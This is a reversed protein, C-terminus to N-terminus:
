VVDDGVKLIDDEFHRGDQEGEIWRFSFEHQNTQGLLKCYGVQRQYTWWMVWELEQELM